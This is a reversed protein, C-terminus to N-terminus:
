WTDDEEYSSNILKGVEELEKNIDLMFVKSDYWDYTKKDYEHHKDVMDKNKPDYIRLDNDLNTVCYVPKRQYVLTMTGFDDFTRNVEIKFISAINCKAINAKTAKNLKDYAAQLKNKLKNAEEPSTEIYIPTHFNGYGTTKCIVYITSM